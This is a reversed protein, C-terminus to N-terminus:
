SKTAHSSTRVLIWEDCGSRTHIYGIIDAFPDSDQWPSLQFITCLSAFLLSCLGYIVPWWMGKGSVSGKNREEAQMQQAGQLAKRRKKADEETEEKKEEEEEKETDEQAGFQKILYSFAGGAKVLENYTGEEAIKGNDMVYIHDVFPLFHLAHTVLIRTKSALAGNIVNQFVARGVHADLASLPDDLIIIDSDFYIARAINLRQRQGGSLTIGLPITLCDL